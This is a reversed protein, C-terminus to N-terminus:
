SGPGPRPILHGGGARRGCVHVQGARGRIVLEQGETPRRCSMMAQGMQVHETTVPIMM